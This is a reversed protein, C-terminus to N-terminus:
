IAADQAAIVHEESEDAFIGDPVVRHYFRLILMRSRQVAAVREDSEDVVVKWISRMAYTVDRQCFELHGFMRSRKIPLSVSELCTLLVVSRILLFNGPNSSEMM